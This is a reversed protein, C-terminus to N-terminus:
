PDQSSGIDDVLTRALPCLTTVSALMLAVHPRARLPGAVGLLQFRCPLNEGPCGMLVRHQWFASKVGGLSVRFKHHSSWSRLPTPPSTEPWCEQPRIDGDAVSFLHQNHLGLAPDPGAGRHAAGGLCANMLKSAADGRLRESDSRGKGGPRCRGASLVRRAASFRAGRPGAPGAKPGPVGPSVRQPEAGGRM